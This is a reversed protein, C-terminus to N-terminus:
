LLQTGFYWRVKESEDEIFSKRKKRERASDAQVDYGLYDKGRHLFLLSLSQPFSKPIPWQSGSKAARKCKTPGARGEKKQKNM